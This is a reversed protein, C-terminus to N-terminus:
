IIFNLVYKSITPHFLSSLLDLFCFKKITQAIKVTVQDCIFHIELSNKKHVFKNTKGLVERSVNEILEMLLLTKLYEPLSLKVFDEAQQSLRPHNQRISQIHSEKYQKISIDQVLNAHHLVYFVKCENNALIEIIKAGNIRLTKKDNGYLDKIQALTEDDVIVATICHYPCDDKNENDIRGAEDIFINM